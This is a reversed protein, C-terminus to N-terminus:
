ATASSGAAAPATSCSAPGFGESGRPARRNQNDSVLNAAITVDSNPADPEKDLSNIQVGVRNRRWVSRTVLVDGSANTNEYGIQNDEATSDRVLAHCPRCGGVYVGSDPSGSAYVHDFRGNQAAFAYVGYLGNDHATLYSGRWGELYERQNSYGGSPGV